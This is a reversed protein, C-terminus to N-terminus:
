SSSGYLKHLIGTLSRATLAGLNIGIIRQGNSSLFFTEPLGPVGYRTAAVGAADFAMQYSLKYRAVFSRAASRLDLTDIGLYDIGHGTARAVQAIAPTEKKCVSCTSSWFNVVIPRGRLQSLRIVGGGELRPLDFTPAPRSVRAFGIDLAGSPARAPAALRFIALSAILMVPLSCAAIIM